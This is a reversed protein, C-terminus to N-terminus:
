RSTWGDLVARSDRLPDCAQPPRRRARALEIIEEAWAVPEHSEVVFAALFAVYSAAGYSIALFRNMTLPSRNM